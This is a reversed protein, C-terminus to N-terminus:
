SEVILTKVGIWNCDKDQGIILANIEVRGIRLYTLETLKLTLLDKLIMFKRMRDNEFETWWDQPTSISKWFDEFDCIEIKDKSKAKINKKLVSENKLDFDKNLTIIELKEDSESPYYLGEIATQLQDILSQSYNNKGM